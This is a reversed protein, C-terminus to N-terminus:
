QVGPANVAALQQRMGDHFDRAIGKADTANTPIIVDGHLNVNHTTNNTTNAVSGPSDGATVSAAMRSVEGTGISRAAQAHQDRMANIMDAQPSVSPGADRPRLLTAVDERTLANAPKVGGLAADTASALRKIATEQEAKPAEYRLVTSSIRGPSADVSTALQGAQSAGAKLVAVAYDQADTGFGDAKSTGTKLWDAAGGAGQNHAYGLAAFRQLDGLKGYADSSSSLVANNSDTFARFFREQMAHDALFTERTPVPERLWAAADKIASSGMQYKGSYAGNYGGVKTYDGGSEKEAITSAYLDFLPSKSAVGRSHTGTRGEARMQALVDAEGENTKGPAMVAAGAAVALGWPGLRSLVGRGGIGGAAVAEPLAAAERAAKLEAIAARMAKTDGGFLRKIINLGAMGALIGGLGGFAKSLEGVALTIGGIAGAIDPHDRELELLRRVVQDLGPALKATLINTLNESQKTLIGWDQYLQRSAETAAKSPAPMNKLQNQLDAFKKPDMLVQNIMGEGFNLDRMYGLAVQNNIHNQHVSRNLRAVIDGQINGSKDMFDSVGLRAFAQSVKALEQPDTMRQQLTGFAQTVEGFSGGAAKAATELRNLGAPDMNLRQSMYDLQANAKTTDGIFAKLSKGATFVAFMALAERRVGSFFSAAKVGDREMGSGTAQAQKEVERLQEVSKRAEGSFGKTDMGLQIVLRDIISM